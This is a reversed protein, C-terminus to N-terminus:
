LNSGTTQELKSLGLTNHKMLWPSCQLIVSLFSIFLPLTTPVSGFQSTKQRHLIPWKESGQRFGLTVLFSLFVSTLIDLPYLPQCGFSVLVYVHVDLPWFHPRLSLSMSFTCHTPRPYAHHMKLSVEPSCYNTQILQFKTLALHNYGLSRCKSFVFWSVVNKNIFTLKARPICVHCLVQVARVPQM